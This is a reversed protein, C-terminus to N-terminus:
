VAMSKPNYSGITLRNATRTYPWYDWIAHHQTTKNDWIVIDNVAWKWRCQFDSREIQNYLFALIMDSEPKTMGNIQVTFSPNVYVLKKNTRPHRLVVPHVAESWGADTSLNISARLFMKHKSSHTATLGDLFQQMPPSLSDYMAYTSTYVTDAGIYPVEKCHLMTYEPPNEDCTVDTHWQAGHCFKSNANQNMVSFEPHGEIPNLTEEHYPRINGFVSAFEKQQDYTVDQGRFFLILHLDMARQIEVRQEESIPKTADVGHVIAGIRPTLPEVSITNYVQDQFTPMEKFWTQNILGPYVAM